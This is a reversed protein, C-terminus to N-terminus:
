RYWSVCSRNRCSFRLRFDAINIAYWPLNIQGSPNDHSADAGVVQLLVNDLWSTEVWRKTSFVEAGVSDNTTRDAGRQKSRNHPALLNGNRTFHQCLELGTKKISPGHTTWLALHCPPGTDVNTPTARIIIAHLAYTFYQKRRHTYNFPCKSPRGSGLVVRSVNSPCSRADPSPSPKSRM